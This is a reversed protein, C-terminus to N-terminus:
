RKVDFLHWSKKKKKFILCFVIIIAVFLGVALFQVKYIDVKDTEVIELSKKYNDIGNVEDLNERYVLFTYTITEANNYVDVNVTNNGYDLVNNRINIYCDPELKYSFELATVESSVKVTYLYTFENFALELDGNLIKLEDIM